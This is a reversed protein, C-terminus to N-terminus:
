MESRIYDIMLPTLHPVLLPVYNPLLAGMTKPLLDPMLAVMDDPMHGMRASVVALMDPMVKGLVGPALIPFLLPMMSGMLNLGGPVYKMSKMMPKMGAPMADMMQPLIEAMLGAMNKPDMLFIFKDFYGWMELSYDSQSEIHIGLGEM